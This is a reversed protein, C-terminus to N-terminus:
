AKNRKMNYKSCKEANPLQEIWASINPDLLGFRETGSITIKQKKNSSLENVRKCIQIWCGTSSDRTIPNTPDESNTLRYMPKEGGDLIECTYEAKRDKHFISSYTRVTKFGIPYINHETHYFPLLSVKGLSLLKLSGSVNVPFTIENLNQVPNQKFTVESKIKKSNSRTKPSHTGNETNEPMPAGTSILLEGKRKKSSVPVAEDTFPKLQETFIYLFNTICASSTKLDRALTELNIFGNENVSSLIKSVITENCLNAMEYIKANLSSNIENLPEDKALAIAPVNNQTNPKPIQILFTSTTQPVLKEAKSLIKEKLDQLHNSYAFSSHNKRIFRIVSINLLFEEASHADFLNFYSHFFANHVTPDFEAQKTGSESVLTLCIFLCLQVFKEIVRSELSATPKLRAHLEDFCIKGENGVLPLGFNKLFEIIAYKDDLSVSDLDPDFGEFDPQEKGRKKREEDESESPSKEPKKEEDITVGTDDTQKQIIVMLKKLRRTIADANPFDQLILQSYVDARKDSITIMKGWDESLFRSSVPLRQTFFLNYNAYGIQYTALLLHSDQFRTWWYAPKQGSLAEASCFDLLTSYDFFTQPARNAISTFHSKFGSILENVRHMLQLRRAWPKARQRISNLDWERSNVCIIPDLNYTQNQALFAELEQQSFSEFAKETQLPLRKPQQLISLLLTKLDLNQFGLNDAISKVLSNAYARLDSVSKERSGIGRHEWFSQQIADWRGYGFSLLAKKLLEREEFNWSIQALKANRDLRCPNKFLVEPVIYTCRRTQKVNVSDQPAESTAVQKSQSKSGNDTLDILTFILNTSSRKSCKPTVSIVEMRDLYTPSPKMTRYVTFVAVNSEFLIELPFGHIESEPWTPPLLNFYALGEHKFSFPLSRIPIDTGMPSHLILNHAEM